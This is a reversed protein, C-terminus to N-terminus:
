DGRRWKSWHAVTDDESDYRYDDTDDTIVPKTASEGQKSPETAIVVELDAIPESEDKPQIHDLVKPSKPQNIQETLHTDQTLTELAKIRESKASEILPKVFIDYLHKAFEKHEHTMSDDQNNLCYDVLCKWESFPLNEGKLRQEIWIKHLPRNDIGLASLDLKFPTKRTTKSM